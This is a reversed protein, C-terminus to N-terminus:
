AINLENITKKTNIDTPRFKLHLLGKIRKQLRTVKSKKIFYTTFLYMPPIVTLILIIAWKLDENYNLDSKKLILSKSMGTFGNYFNLKEYKNSDLTSYEGNVFLDDEITMEITELVVEETKKDLIPQTKQEATTVPHTKEGNFIFTNIRRGLLRNFLEAIKESENIILKMAFSTKTKIHLTNTASSFTDISSNKLVELILPEKNEFVASIIKNWIKQYETM